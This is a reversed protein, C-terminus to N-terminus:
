HGSGSGRAGRRPIPPKIWGVAASFFIISVPLFNLSGLSPKAQRRNGISLFSLRLKERFNIRTQGGPSTSIVFLPVHLKAPHAAGMIRLPALGWCGHRWRIMNKKKEALVKRAVAERMNAAVEAVCHGVVIWSISAYQNFTESGFMAQTVALFISRLGDPISSETPM